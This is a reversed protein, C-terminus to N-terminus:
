RAPRSIMAGSCCQATTIAISDIQWGDFFQSNGDDTACRWRLTITQGQAGPPLNVTTTVYGGSNGSWCQRGALPNGYMNTITRNYGFSVFSGGASIIDAFSNTGVQIELVGGDDAGGGPDPELDYISRFSLQAPAAPLAIPPSVLEGVGPASPDPVFASNPASDSFSSVTIWASQGGSASSTWGSPLAPTATSDFNETFAPTLQGLTFPVSVAGLYTAGDYLEFIAAITDGCAGTATFSYSQAVAGGGAALAGYTQPASPSAVGGGELLTAVLNTTSTAGVNKFAFSVTVTEGPDIAANAPLCSEAALSASDLAISPGNTDPFDIYVTVGRNTLNAYHFYGLASPLEANQSLDVFQLNSASEADTLLQDIVTGPLQNNPARIELLSVCGTLIINTLDNNEAWFLQLNAQQGLDASTYHNGQIEVDTLNTSVFSLPGNQNANWIWPEQLSYFNTMIEQFNQTIQPNDRICWHWIKPGTGRGVKVETFSNLAARVDELNANGALDLEQLDCSEFCVRRLSPLNSVAVHLLNSCHFCEIAELASFGTFDLTKIPNYSSGWYRLGTLPYPFSAASVKQQPRNTLQTNEGGDSGDFGFNISTIASAPFVTLSQTRTGQSGFSKSTLPFSSSTAGDSWQWLLQQPAGNDCSVMPAFTSGKTVFRALYGIGVSPSTASARVFLNTPPHFPLSINATGDAGAIVNSIAGWSGTLAAQTQVSYPGPLGQLTVAAQDANLQRPSCIPQQASPAIVFAGDNNTIWPPWFPYHDPLAGWLPWNAPSTIPNTWGQWIPPNISAGQISAPLGLVALHNSGVVVPSQAVDFNTPYLNGNNTFWYIYSLAFNYGAKMRLTSSNTYWGSQNTFVLDVRLFNWDIPHAKCQDFWTVAVVDGYDVSATNQWNWWSHFKNYDYACRCQWLLPHTNTPENQGGPCPLGTIFLSPNVASAPLSLLLLCLTGALYFGRKLAFVKSDKLANWCVM